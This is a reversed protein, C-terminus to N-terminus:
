EFLHQKFRPLNKSPDWYGFSSKWEWMTWPILREEALTKVDHLYRGRSATDGADHAGFEGLHVPRGFHNSWSRAVDLLERVPRKSCPNDEGALTNYSEVFAVLGANSRLPPPLRFPTTPPGPYTIGRLAQLGAWGAGQHTFQFPAYNHLTVVLRDDDDPLRLKDLEGAAGWNGPSVVIMRESNTKRIATLTKRYIPNAVETTLKDCPENLLEFFLGPPWSKFNRAIAEWGSIFRDLNEAPAATLDNFHHWNILVRLNKEIARRLVPELEALLASDIEQIQGTRKLYYHWAVPVRIHDFGEAAIRDIDEVTFRARWSATPPAEWGNGLNVGRKLRALARHAPTDDGLAKPVIFDPPTAAKAHLKLTVTRGSKVHLIQTLPRNCWATAVRKGELAEAKELPWSDASPYASWPSKWGVPAGKELKEFGGNELEAGEASIGDWLIEKRPMEGNENAAWPGLLSLELIGDWTPTFSVSLGSWSWWRVPFLIDTHRERIAPDKEWTAPTVHGASVRVGRLAPQDAPVKLWLRADSALHLPETAQVTTILAVLPLLHCKM